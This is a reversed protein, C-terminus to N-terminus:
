QDFDTSVSLQLHAAMQSKLQEIKYDAYRLADSGLLIRLPPNEMESIKYIVLAAREPDGPQNGIIEQSHMRKTESVETYESLEKAPLVVSGNKLFNTKFYGPEVITVKLKFPLLEEALAESFGEMAFKTACYIGWGKGAILGFVSSINIIHGKGTKRMNPLVARIMGLAAFVNVDFNAQVEQKSAEEIGAMLGYGANNVLVDISGFTEEAFKVAAQISSENLLDVEIPLFNASSIGVVNKLVQVKRATAVVNDGNALAMKVIELGIGQSTGTILWTKKTKM